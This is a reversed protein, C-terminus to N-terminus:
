LKPVSTAVLSISVAAAVSTVSPDDFVILLTLLGVWLVFQVTTLLFRRVFVTSSSLQLVLPTAVFPLWYWLRALRASRSLEIAALGSLIPLVDGM